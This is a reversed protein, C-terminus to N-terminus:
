TMVNAFKIMRDTIGTENMLNGAFVFFPVALLPFNQTASILRQVVVEMPVERLLFYPASATGITFALPLGSALLVIFLIGVLSM